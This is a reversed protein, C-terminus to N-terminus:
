KPSAPESQSIFNPANTVKQSKFSEKPIINESIPSLVKEKAEKKNDSSSYSDKHEEENYSAIKMKNKTVSENRM